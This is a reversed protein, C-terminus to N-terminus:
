LGLASPIGGRWAAEIKALPVDLEGLKFATGGVKGLVCVPAGESQALKKLGGLSKADVSVVIRSQAEGFLAADWRGSVTAEGAFGRKGAICSEALAVALGGDSCDHASKALGQAIAKRVTRQVAAELKLDITPKGVILGHVAELFESGSLTAPDGEIAG